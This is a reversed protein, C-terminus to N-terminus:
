SQVFQVKSCKGEVKSLFRSPIVDQDVDSSNLDPILISNDAVLFIASTKTVM